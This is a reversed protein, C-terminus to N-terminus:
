RISSLAFRVDLGASRSMGPKAWIYEAKKVTRMAITAEAVNRPRIVAIRTVAAAATPDM